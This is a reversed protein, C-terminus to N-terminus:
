QFQGVETVNGNMVITAPDSTGNYSGIGIGTWSTFSYDSFAYASILVRSGAPYYSTSPFPGTTGENPPSALITLAYSIITNPPPNPNIWFENGLSTVLGIQQEKSIQPVYSIYAIGSPLMVIPFLASLGSIPCSSSQCLAISGNNKYEIILFLVQSQVSGTNLIEVRERPLTYAELMESAKSSMIQDLSSSSQNADSQYSLVVVFSSIVLMGVFMFFITGIVTSIGIRNKRFKM